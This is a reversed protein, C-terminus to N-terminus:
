ENPNRGLAVSKEYVLCGGGQSGLMTRPAGSEGIGLNTRTSAAGNAWAPWLASCGFVDQMIRDPIAHRCMRCCGQNELEIRKEYLKRAAAAEPSDEFTSSATEVPAPRTPGEGRLSVAYDRCLQDIELMTVRGIHRLKRLENRSYGRLDQLTYINYIHLINQLRVSLDIDRLPFDLNLRDPRYPM